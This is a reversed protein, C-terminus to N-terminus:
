LRFSRRVAVGRGIWTNEQRHGDGVTHRDIKEIRLRSSYGKQVGSPPSGRRTDKWTTDGEEALPPPNIRSAEEYMQPRGDASCTILHPRLHEPCKAHLDRRVGSGHIHSPDQGLLRPGSPDQGLTDGDGPEARETSVAVQKRM